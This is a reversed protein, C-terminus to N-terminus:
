EPNSLSLFVIGNRMLTGCCYLVNYRTVFVRLERTYMCRQSSDAKRFAVQGAYASSVAKKQAVAVPYWGM